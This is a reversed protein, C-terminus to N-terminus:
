YTHMDSQWMDLIGGEAAIQEGWEEHSRLLLQLGKMDLDAHVEHRSHVLTEGQREAVLAAHPHMGPHDDMPAEHQERIHAAMAARDNGSVTAELSLSFASTMDKKQHM